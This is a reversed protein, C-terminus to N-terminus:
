LFGKPAMPGIVAWRSVSGQNSGRFSLQVHEPEGCRGPVGHHDACHHLVLRSAQKSASHCLQDFAGFMLDQMTKTPRRIATTKQVCCACSCSMFGVISDRQTMAEHKSYPVTSIICFDSVM